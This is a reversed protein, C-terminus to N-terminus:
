ASVEEDKLAAVERRADESAAERRYDPLPIIHYLTDGFYPVRWDYGLSFGDANKVGLVGCLSDEVEASSAATVTAWLCAGHEMRGQTCVAYVIDTPFPYDPLMGAIDGRYCYGQEGDESRWFVKGHDLTCGFGGTGICAKGTMTPFAEPRLTFCAGTLDLVEAGRPM